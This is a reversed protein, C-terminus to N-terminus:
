IYILFLYFKYDQRKLLLIEADAAAILSKWFTNLSRAQHSEGGGRRGLRACPTHEQLERHLDATFEQQVAHYDRRGLM